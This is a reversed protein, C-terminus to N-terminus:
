RVVESLYKKLLEKVEDMHFPKYVVDDFGQTLLVEKSEWTNATVAIIRIRNSGHEHNHDNRYKLWNRIMECAEKGSLIPMYCDLLVMHYKKHKFKEFCEMGDNTADVDQFGIMQLMKTLVKRNVANDDAILVSYTSFDFEQEKEIQPLPSESNCCEVNCGQKEVNIENFLNELESFKVPKSLYQNQPFNRKSGKNITPIVISDKGFLSSAQEFEHEPVFVFQRCAKTNNFPHALSVNSFCSIRDIRNMLSLYAQLVDRFCEDEDVIIVQLPKENEILPQRTSGEHETTCTELPLVVTMKTGENVNSSVRIQGNMKSVLLKVISLGLGNRNTHILSSAGDSLNETQKFYHEFSPSFNENQHQLMSYPQFLKDIQDNSIGCGSDIFEMKVFTLSNQSSNPISIMEMEDEHSALDCNIRVYGKNTYKIANSILNMVIQSIRVSDGLFQQHVKSINYFLHISINKAHALQSFVGVLSDLLLKLNFEERKLETKGAELSSIQLSSTLIHM